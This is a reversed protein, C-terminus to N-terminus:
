ILIKFRDRTPRYFTTMLLHLNVTLSNMMVVEGVKAGVLRAGPGRFWEHYPAWPNKGHFHAEVGLAAWDDLEQEVIARATAPQLGLSNGTMYVVPSGDRKKPFLFRERLGRLADAGDLERAYSEATIVGGSM